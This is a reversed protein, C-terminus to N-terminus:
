NGSTSVGSAAYLDTAIERGRESGLGIDGHHQHARPTSGLYGRSAVVVEHDQDM